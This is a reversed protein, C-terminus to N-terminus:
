KSRINFFLYAAVAATGIAIVPEVISSFFPENPLQSSTFSYAINELKSIDNYKVTDSSVFSFNNVKGFENKNKIFYSGNLKAQRSVLYEGLIGDRFIEKYNIKIENITYNLGTKNKDSLHFRNKQLEEILTNKLVLYDNPAIFDLLIKKNSGNTFNDNIGDISKVLLTEVIEFNTTVQAFTNISIINFFIVTIIKSIIKTL